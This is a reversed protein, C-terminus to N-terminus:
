LHGGPVPQRVGPSVPPRSLLNGGPLHQLALVGLVALVILCYWSIRDKVAFLIPDDPVKGRRAQFWIRTIWYMLLPCILWLFIPSPYMASAADQVYLAMVLVAMYGSAPGVSEIIRLDHIDYGRGKAHEQGRMEVMRLEVYRKVFALSVFLFMSFALLWPSVPVGVAAGGAVIRLTYLGALVMVDVLMRSKLYFSYETSLLLYFVLLMAFSLPLALCLLAAGGLLVLLIPPGYALPLRGAAFARARKTPHQRDAEIDLLDNLVYVSSATLSFACFAAIAAVWKHRNWLDHALLMPLFLLINKVWQHPRVAKFDRLHLRAHAGIHEPPCTTCLAQARAALRPHPAVVYAKGAAPWVALDAPSDGIYDFGGPFKALLADRKVAGKLNTRADSAIVEDFLGVHDAVARALTENSATVLLIRRGRAKERELFALVEPRFALGAPDVRVREAIRHKLAARGSCLWLPLRPMDLPRQRLLRFFSEWLLDGAILTGDLDVCLPRAVDSDPPVDVARLAAGDAAVSAASTEGASTNM